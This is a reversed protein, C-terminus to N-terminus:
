NTNWWNQGYLFTWGYDKVKEECEKISSVGFESKFEELLRPGFGDYVLKEILHIEYKVDSIDNGLETVIDSVVTIKYSWSDLNVIFISNLPPLLDMHVFRQLHYFKENEGDM